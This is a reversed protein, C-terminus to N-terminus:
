VDIKLIWEAVERVAGYGGSKQTILKAIFRVEPVSDEVAIPIGVWRMCALDNVDNGLYAIQTPTLSRRQAMKKLASLKDECGQVFDLKLKRCRAEVVPNIETSLVVVELGTEKLRAIGWGDSRNVVVAEKGDQDVIARNDTMVGDFDLVLLKIAALDPKSSQSPLISLVKEALELDAPRDIQLSSLRSMPYIAIKGGLRSHHQRLVWPKFIYISGNEEVIEKELEQRLPRREPEYNVPSIRGGVSQWIFGEIHCASFLSDADEQLLHDIANQVDHPQRIPSTAQLFVVLDPQYGNLDQLHDLAHLLASESSASDGSIEAPRWIVEAGYQRAVAGIDDDDTSVVVRDISPTKLAAEISYALLPKGGLSQINKRPIGKSGGRAPILALIRQAQSM